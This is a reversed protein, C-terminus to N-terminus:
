YIFHIIYLGNGTVEARHVGQAALLEAEVSGGVRAAAAARRGGGQREAPRGAATRRWGATTREVETGTRGNWPAATRGTRGPVVTRGKWGLAAGAGRRRQTAGAPGGAAQRPAAVVRAAPGRGGPGDGTRRGARIGGLRVGTRRQLRPLSRRTLLRGGRRVGVERLDGEGERQVPLRFVSTSRTGDCFFLLGSFAKQAM